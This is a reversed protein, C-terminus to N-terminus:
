ASEPALLLIKGVHSGSEMYRHAAAAEALPFSRDIVPRICGAAVHPWLDRLVGAVIRAKAAPPRDRLSTTFLAARKRMMAGLNIEADRGGQLGIMAIRGDFALAAVNRGLYAAGMNDLIVDAGRGGTEAEIVAVFDEDTYSIARDAGFDRCRGLKEASGATAFVRAGIARAAQIAFSGIGGAGGHVLLSEGAQLAGLDLVNSWVTCAAEPLAAAEVLDIGTPIPLVQAAPSAVFSAYAGSSVLACAPDGVRWGSVGAGVEAIVGSCEYGIIRPLSQEIGYTGRRQLLDAYNLAAAHVRLVIEGPGARPAPVDGWVLAEPGGFQALMVAKMQKSDAGVEQVLM